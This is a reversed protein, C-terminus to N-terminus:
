DNIELESKIYRERELLQEKKAFLKKEKFDAFFNSITKNDIITIVPFSVLAGILTAFVVLVICSGSSLNLIFSSFVLSVLAFIGMVSLCILAFHAGSLEMQTPRDMLKETELDINKKKSNILSLENNLEKYRKESM